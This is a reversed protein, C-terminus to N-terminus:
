KACRFGVSSGASGASYSLYLAFAGATSGNSWYGGRIFVTTGQDTGNKYTYIQGVGQSSTWGTDSPGVYNQAVDATWASIYPSANNSYQCWGWTVLGDSCPPLDIVTQLDASTRQVHEWVNGALDWITEGNSLTLTRRQNGSTNNTNAYGDTDMSAQLAKAPVNDNHGSYLYGNGSSGGSWNTGTNEASRAITMYEENTLLHAGISACYTKANNHSIRTIAYGDKRSSIYRSNAGTCPANSDYYTEYAAETPSFLANGSSDLCKAEYKMVYFDSTNYVSNGPVRVWDGGQPIGALQPASGQTFQTTLIGTQSLQKQKVSEINASIAYQTSSGPIYSYYFSTNNTPDLPLSPIPSGGKVSSLDLPLWGTGDINRLNVSTVCNYTFGTPLTPLGAVGSCNANADAISIYVKNATGLSTTPNDIVFLSVADGVTKMDSSRQGDRAQALLEAPNLVIVVAAALVAIIAIVILLEVLTFGKKSKRRPKLFWSRVRERERSIKNSMIFLYSLLGLVRM